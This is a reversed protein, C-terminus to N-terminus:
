IIKEFENIYESFKERFKVHEDVDEKLKKKIESIELRLTKLDSTIKVISDYDIARYISDKTYKEVLSKLAENIREDITNITKEVISNLKKNIKNKITDEYSSVILKNIIEYTNSSNLKENYENLYKEKEKKIREIDKPNVKYTKNGKLIIFNNEFAIIDEVFITIKKGSYKTFEVKM